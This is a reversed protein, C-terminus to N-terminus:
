NFGYAIIPLNGVVLVLFTLFAILLLLIPYTRKYKLNM